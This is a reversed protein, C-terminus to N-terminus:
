IKMLNLSDEIEGMSGGYAARIEEATRMRSDRDYNMQTFIMPEEDAAGPRRTKAMSKRLFHFTSQGRELKRDNPPGTRPLVVLGVLENNYFQAQGRAAENPGKAGYQSSKLQSPQPRAGAKQHGGSSAAAFQMDRDRLQEPLDDMPSDGQNGYAQQSPELLMQQEDHLTLRGRHEPEGRMRRNYM